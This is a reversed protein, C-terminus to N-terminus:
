ANRERLHLTRVHDAQAEVAQEYFRNRFREHKSFLGSFSPKGYGGCKTTTVPGFPLKQGVTLESLRLSVITLHPM